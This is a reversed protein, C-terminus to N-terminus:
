YFGRGRRGGVDALLVQRRVPGCLSGALESEGGSPAPLAMGVSQDTNAVGNQLGEGSDIADASM